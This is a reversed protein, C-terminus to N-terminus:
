AGGAQASALIPLNRGSIRRDTEFTRRAPGVVIAALYGDLASLLKTEDSTADSLLFRHLEELEEDSLPLSINM